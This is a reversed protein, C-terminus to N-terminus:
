GCFRKLPRLATYGPKDTDRTRTGIELKTEKRTAKAPLKTRNGAGVHCYSDTCELESLGEESSRLAPM